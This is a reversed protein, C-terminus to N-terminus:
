VINMSLMMIITTSIIIIIGYCVMFGISISLVSSVNKLFDSIKKVNFVDAVLSSLFIAIKVSLVSIIPPLIMVLLSIIGFTGVGTRIVGLSGKLTSYAESVAGGVIPIFSSAMLKGTRLSLSDASVGIISQLTLMAVFISMIAGLSWTIAKKIGNSLGQLSFAPNIVEVFSISMYVSLFPVLVTGAIRSVVQGAVLIMTSYIGASTISGSTGVVGAFVPTFTMVFVSVEELTKTTLIICNSLFEYIVTICFVAGIVDVIKKLDGDSGTFSQLVALIIIMAVTIAFFKIPKSIEKKVLDNIYSIANKLSFKSFFSTNDGLMENEQVFELSEQNLGKKLEKYNEELFDREFSQEGVTYIEKAVVDTKISFFMLFIIFFMLIKTKTQKM